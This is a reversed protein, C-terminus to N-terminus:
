CGQCAYHQFYVTQLLQPGGDCLISLWPTAIVLQQLPGVCRQNQCIGAAARAAWCVGAEAPCRARHWSSRCGPLHRLLQLGCAHHTGQVPPHPAGSALQELRVHQRAQLCVRVMYWMVLLYSARWRSHPIGVAKELQGNQLPLCCAAFVAAVCRLVGARSGVALLAGGAGSSAACCTLQGGVDRKSVLQGGAAAAWVRLSGDVGCSILHAGTPAPAIGTIPGVHWDALPEVQLMLWSACTIILDAFSATSVAPAALQSVLAPNHFAVPPRPFCCSCTCPM